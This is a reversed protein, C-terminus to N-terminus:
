PVPPPPPTATTFLSKLEAVNGAMDWNAMGQKWVYTNSNMKGQQVLSQLQSMSFPGSQAGNETIMFQSIPPPPPTNMQQNMNNGMQNAMNAMQGGMAGGMMMGTMMGAPNLGGNGMNMTGMQGMNDAATKLIDTQQDLAHAGMFNTETQLRQARQLEERQIRLSEQMNEANIGQMDQMNQINVDGQAEITKTAQDKTVRMLDFYGDSEKDPEITSLDFRKLNVGFDNVFDQALRQQIMDSIEMVKREIQIVPIGASSPVNTIFGKVYKTVASKVQGEFQELDFDILRHLKIFAKV